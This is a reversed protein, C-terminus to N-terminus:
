GPRQGPSDSGVGNPNRLEAEQQPESDSQSAKGTGLWRELTAALEELKYPKSLYDDMGAELCRERDGKLAHATVAIVPLHQGASEMRRIRRTTEYGDLEPMQCDMLVLDYSREQIKKLAQRGNHAADVHYGLESLQRLIVLRNVPNDEALLVHWSGAAKRAPGHREVGKSADESGLHFRATLEFTSGEHPRSSVSITGGMLEILQKSIALGLGTGGFRRSTSSDAQTFPQYLQEMAEPPIGIGTDRVVFRLLFGDEDEGDEGEGYPAKVELVVHGESTFKIANGILNQLVRRLRTRDGKLLDPVDDDVDLELDLGKALARPTFVQIMRELTKRLSFDEEELALNGAEIKSFELIDDVVELMEQGTDKILEAYDQLVVSDGSDGQLQSLGIIGSLPTRIEHSMNALFESKARNAQEAAEEAQKQTTIDTFTAFSGKFHEEEDFLPTPSVITHVASGDRPNKWVVEYHDAKGKRRRRFEQDIIERNPEDFFSRAPQGVSEERSRGFMECFRDNVYLVIGNEDAIALGDNMAEVLQRYRNESAELEKTRLRVEHELRNAYRKGARFNYVLFLIWALLLVGAAPLWPQSWISQAM